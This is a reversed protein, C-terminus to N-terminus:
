QIDLFIPTGRILSKIIRVTTKELDKWRHVERTMMKKEEADRVYNGKCLLHFLTDRIM